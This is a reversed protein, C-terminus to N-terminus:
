SDSLAIPISECKQSSSLITRARIVKSNYHEGHYPPARSLTAHSVARLVHSPAGTLLHTSCPKPTPLRVNLNAKINPIGHSSCSYHATRVSCLHQDTELSLLTSLRLDCTLSLLLPRWRGQIGIQYGPGPLLVSTFKYAVFGRPYQHISRVSWCDITQVSESFSPPTRSDLPRATM